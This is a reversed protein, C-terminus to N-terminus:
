IMGAKIKPWMHIQCRLILWEARDSCHECATEASFTNRINITQQLLIFGNVIKQCKIKVSNKNVTEMLFKLKRITVKNKKHLRTNLM